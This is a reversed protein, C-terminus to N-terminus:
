VLHAVAHSVFSSQCSQDNRKHVSRLWFFIRQRGRNPLPSFLAAIEPSGCAHLLRARAPQHWSRPIRIPLKLPIASSDFQRLGRWPDICHANSHFICIRCGHFRRCDFGHVAPNPPSIPNADSVCFNSVGVAAASRVSLRSLGCIGHGSTCGNQARAGFEVLLAAAVTRGLSITSMPIITEYSTGM